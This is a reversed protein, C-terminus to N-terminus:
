PQDRPARWVLTHRLDSGPREVSNNHRPHATRDDGFWAPMGFPLDRPPIRAYDRERFSSGYNPLAPDGDADPTVAARLQPIAQGWEAVLRAADHSSPHPV